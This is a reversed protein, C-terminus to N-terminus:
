KGSFHGLLGLYFLEQDSIKIIAERAVTGIAKIRQSTALVVGLSVLQLRWRWRQRWNQYTKSNSRKLM